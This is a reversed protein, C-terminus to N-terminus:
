RTAKTLALTLNGFPSASIRYTSIESSRKNASVGDAYAAVSTHDVVNSLIEFGLNTESNHTM